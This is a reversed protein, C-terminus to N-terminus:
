MEVLIYLTRCPLCHSLVEKSVAINKGPNVKQKYEIKFIKSDISFEAAATLILSNNLRSTNHSHQEEGKTTIPAKKPIFIFGMFIGQLIFAKGVVRGCFGQYKWNLNVKQIAPNSDKLANKM